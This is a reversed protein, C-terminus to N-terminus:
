LKLPTVATRVVLGGGKALNTSTICALLVKLESAMAKPVM